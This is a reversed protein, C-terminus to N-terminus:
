LWHREANDEVDALVLNEAFQEYQQHRETHAAAKAEGATLASINVPQRRPQIVQASKESPLFLPFSRLFETGLM